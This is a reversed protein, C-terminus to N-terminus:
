DASTDEEVPQKSRDSKVKAICNEVTELLHDPTYLVARWELADSQLFSDMGLATGSQLVYPIKEEEILEIVDSLFSSDETELVSILEPSSPDGSDPSESELERVLAIDCDACRDFGERYEAQCNPCIMNQTYLEKIM